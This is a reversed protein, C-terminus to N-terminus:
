GDKEGAAEGHGSQCRSCCVAGRQEEELQKQLMQKKPGEPLNDVMRALTSFHAQDCEEYTEQGRVSERHNVIMDNMAREVDKMSKKVDEQGKGKKRAGSAM